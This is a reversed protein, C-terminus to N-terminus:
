LILMADGYSFFRYKERVAEEYVKKLQDTGVFASVLMFLTSKPLHFNTVMADVIEFSRGPHIFIDTWGKKPLLKGGESSSELARVVTTGVAIVRGGRKKVDNVKDAVNKDIQFYEEHMKHEKLSEVRVPQFTGPGVHLTIMEIDAGRERIEDMIEETFHLGATPAAVAGDRKAFVTQYRDKDDDTPMRKIYPPLPLAGFKEIANRVMELARLKLLVTGECIEVVTAEIGGNLLFHMGPSTKKSTKVMAEWHDTKLERILLIEVKGGTKKHGFLRAPIVRTDNLVLLDNPGFFGSIEQFSHHSVKNEKRHHVLLRSHSRVRPPSQAILEEPLHYDFENTKM